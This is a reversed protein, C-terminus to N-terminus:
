LRWREGADSQFIPTGREVDLIRVSLRRTPGSGTISLVVIINAGASNGINVIDRDAVLGSVHLEQEGFFLEAHQREVLRIGKQIFDAIMNDVIVEALSNDPSNNHLWVAKGQTIHKVIEEIALATVRETPTVAAVQSHERAEETTQIRRNIDEIMAQARFNGTESYAEALFSLAAQVDGSAEYLIAINMAAAINKHRNYIDQYARLSTTRNGTKAYEMARRMEDRLIKDKQKEETEFTRNATVPHSAYNNRMESFGILNRLMPLAEPYGSESRSRNSKTSQQPQGVTSGDRTRVLRYNFAIEVSTTYETYDERVTVMQGDVRRRVNRQKRESAQNVNIHTIEGVLRADAYSEITQGTRILPEVVSYDVLSFQPVGAVASRAQATAHTAVESYYRGNPATFPAVVVTRIGVADRFRPPAEYQVRVVHARPACSSFIIVLLFFPIVVKFVHKM